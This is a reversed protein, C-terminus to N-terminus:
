STCDFELMLKVCVARSEFIFTPGNSMQRKTSWESSDACRTLGPPSTALRGRLEAPPRSDQPPDAEQVVDDDPLFTWALLIIVASLILWPM